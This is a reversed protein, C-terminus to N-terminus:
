PVVLLPPTLGLDFVRLPQVKADGLRWMSIAPVGGGNPTATLWFLRDSDATWALASIPFGVGVPVTTIQDAVLDIVDLFYVDHGPVDQDSGAIAFHRGDPSFAATAAGPGAQLPTGGAPAPGPRDTCARTDTLHVRNTVDIWALLDGSLGIEYPIGAAASPRSGLRCRLAGDALNRVEVASQDPPYVILATSTADIALGPVAIPGMLVRGTQDLELATAASTHSDEVWIASPDAAGFVSSGAALKRPVGSGDPALAWVQEGFELAIYGQRAVVNGDVMPAPVPVSRSSDIDLRTLQHNAVSLLVVGIPGDLWHGLRVLEGEAAPYPAATAVAPSNASRPGWRTQAAALDHGVALADLGTQDDASDPVPRGTPRDYWTAVRAFRAARDAVYAVLHSRLSSLGPDVLVARRLRDGVTLFRYQEDHYVAALAANVPGDATFPLYAKIHQEAIIRGGDDAQTQAWQRQLWQLQRRALLDRVPFAIAVGVITALVVM